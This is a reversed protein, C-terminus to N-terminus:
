SLTIPEVCLPDDNLPKNVRNSVPHVVLETAPLRELSVSGASLWAGFEEPPLIVPMRHHISAISEDAAKTLVTFTELADGPRLHALSKPAAAGERTIWREWLGALAIVGGDRPEILWAQRTTGRKTWEYFGDAPILCRRSRYAARFSPKSGATESRANILKYGIRADRSWAPVLGWRLMTLSREDEDARVIAADQGPALNYRPALNCPPSGLDMFDRIEQWTFRQTFRGCM